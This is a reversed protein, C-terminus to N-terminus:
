HLLTGKQFLNQINKGHIGSTLLSKEAHGTNIRDKIVNPFLSQNKGTRNM